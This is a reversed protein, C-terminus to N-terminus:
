RGNKYPKLIQKAIELMSKLRLNWRTCRKAVTTISSNLLGILFVRGINLSRDRINKTTLKTSAFMPTKVDIMKPFHLGSSIRHTAVSINVCREIEPVPISVFKVHPKPMVDLEITKEKVSFDDEACITLYARDRLTYYDFGQCALDDKLISGNDSKIYIRNAYSVNWSIKFPVDTISYQKDSCFLNIAAEYKAVIRIPDCRFLRKHDLGCVEIYILTTESLTLMCSGRMSNLEVPNDGVYMIASTANTIHWSISVQNDQQKKILTKDSNLSITPTKYQEISITKSSEKLLRRNQNKLKNEVYKENLVSLCCQSIGAELEVEHNIALIEKNNIRIKTFDSAEWHIKVKQDEYNITSQKFSRIVPRKLQKELDNLEKEWLAGLEETEKKTLCSLLEQYNVIHELTIKHKVLVEAQYKAKVEDTFNASYGRTVIDFDVQTLGGFGGKINVGTSTANIDSFLTDSFECVNTNIKIIIPNIIRGDNKAAFMMPHEPCFSLRVYNALGKAEDLSRSLDDGGPRVIKIREKECDKWSLLGGNKIISFLNDRDTFHYLCIIGKEQLFRQINCESIEM